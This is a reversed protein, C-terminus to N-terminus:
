HHLFKPASTNFRQFPKAKKRELNSNSLISLIIRIEADDQPVNADAPISIISEGFPLLVGINKYVKLRNSDCCM